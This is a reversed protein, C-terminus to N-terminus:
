RVGETEFVIGEPKTFLEPKAKLDAEYSLYNMAMILGNGGFLEIRVPKNAKEFVVLREKGEKFEIKNLSGLTPHAVRQPKIGAERLWSLECGIELSRIFMSNVAADAFLRARFYFTPGPDRIYRGRREALNVMWLDPENVVIVLHVRTEPNLAEEVRGQREGLRYLTKPVRYFHNAPLNPADISTVAKLMSQPACVRDAAYVSLPLLLTLLVFSGLPKMPVYREWYGARARRGVYPVASTRAAANVPNNPRVM